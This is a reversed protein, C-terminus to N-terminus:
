PYAKLLSDPVMKGRPTIRGNRQRFRGFANDLRGAIEKGDEDTVAEENMDPSLRFVQTGNLHYEGMIFDVQDTKTQIMPYAHINRFGRATDLGAGMWQAGSPRRIGYGHSLFALLSPAIDFHTSVSLFDATRKLLPSYFILPVHYRDIKTRMPIEPMRHDGTILFVTNQFDARHAYAAFFSRLADDMYLISVYQDKFVRHEKKQAEDFGLQNMRNEFLRSYKDPENIKFPSHTSVTLIVSLQPQAPVAARTELYRRFLEKDNYGWSFGNEAPLKTYGAPFSRGDNLEDIGGKQLFLDMNDFHADGGYYFSSHYGDRKLVNLLSLQSPMGEGMELFGNKGFPLSGLVSPLVAFTRGGESLFNKWYLSHGALSDLFPTFNGLYAGENTFARGLGEVLIIVIHPPTVTETHRAPGDQGRLAFFPSLVDKTSDGHFFPYGTEDPYLFNAALGEDGGTEGAYYDAYIDTEQEEPFFHDRSQRFFYGPKSLVLNSAFDSPFVGHHRLLSPGATMAIVSLLPLLLAPLLPIRIRRCALRLWLFPIGALVAFIAITGANMSGSAGVTQKIDKWSYGYLDAGLPVFATSFYKALMFQILVLLVIIVMTLGRALRASLFYCAIFFVLLWGCSDLWYVGENFLKYLFLSGAHEWIGPASGNSLFEYGSLLLIMVLWALSLAAFLRIHIKLDNM